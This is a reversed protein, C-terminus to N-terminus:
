NVKCGKGLCSELGIADFIKEITTKQYPLSLEKIIIGNKKFILKDNEFMIDYNPFSNRLNQIAMLFESRTVQDLDVTNNVVNTGVNLQTIGNKTLVSGNTGYVITNSPLPQNFKINTQKLSDKLQDLMYETFTETTSMANLTSMISEYCTGPIMVVTLPDIMETSSSYMIGNDVIRKMICNGGQGLNKLRLSQRYDVDQINHYEGSDIYCCSSTLKNSGSDLYNSGKINIQYFPLSGFTQTAITYQRMTEFINDTFNYGQLSNSYNRLLFGVRCFGAGSQNVNIRNCQDFQMAVGTTYHSYNSPCPSFACQTVTTENTSAMYLLGVNAGDPTFMEYETVDSDELQNTDPNFWKLKTEHQEETPFAGYISETFTRQNGSGEPKSPDFKPNPYTLSIVYKKNITRTAYVRSIVLGENNNVKNLYGSKRYEGDIMNVDRISAYYANLQIDTLPKYKDNCLITTFQFGAPEIRLASYFNNVGFIDIDSVYSNDQVRELIIGHSKVDNMQLSFNSLRVKYQMSNDFYMIPAMIAARKWTYFSAKTFDGKAFIKRKIDWVGNTDCSITTKGIGSGILESAKLFLPSSIYYKKALLKVIGHYINWYGFKENSYNPLNDKTTDRTFDEKNDISFGSINAPGFTSSGTQSVIKRNSYREGFYICNACLAKNIIETDDDTDNTKEFWEPYIYECNWQLIDCQDFTSEKLTGDNEFLIGSSFGSLEDGHYIIQNEADYIIDIDIIDGAELTCSSPHSKLINPWNSKNIVARTQYDKVTIVSKINGQSDIVNGRSYGDGTKLVNFYPSATIDLNKGFIPMPSAVISTNNSRLRFPKNSYLFGEESFILTVNEPFTYMNPEMYDPNCESPDINQFEALVDIPSNIIYVGNAVIESLKTLVQKNM